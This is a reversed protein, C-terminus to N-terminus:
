KFSFGYAAEDLCAKREWSKTNVYQLCFVWLVGGLKSSSGYFGKNVVGLECDM